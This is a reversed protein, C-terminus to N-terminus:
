PKYSSSEKLAQGYTIGKKAAYAKVHQIWKSQPKESKSSKTSKSKSSKISKSKAKNVKKKVKKIITERPKPSEIESDSSFDDEQKEIKKPKVSKSRKLKPPEDPIDKVNVELQLPKPAKKTRPKAKQKKEM